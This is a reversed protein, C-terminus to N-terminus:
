QGAEKNILVIWCWAAAAVSSAMYCGHELANMLDPLFFGEILTLTWGALLASYSLLLWTSGPIQSVRSRNLRVFLAVGTGVLFTILENQAVM